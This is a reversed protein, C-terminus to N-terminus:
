IQNAYKISKLVKVIFDNFNTVNITDYKVIKKYNAINKEENSYIKSFLSQTTSPPGVPNSCGIAFIREDRRHPFKAHKNTCHAILHGLTHTHTHTHTHTFADWAASAVALPWYSAFRTVARERRTGCTFTARSPPFFVSGTKAAYHVKKIANRARFAGRTFIWWLCISRNPCVSTTFIAFKRSNYVLCTVIPMYSFLYCLMLSFM